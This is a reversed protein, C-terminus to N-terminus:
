PSSRPRDIADLESQTNVNTLSSAMPCWPPTRQTPLERVHGLRSLLSRMGVESPLSGRVSAVATRRYLAHLPEVGDEEHVPVVADSADGGGQTRLWSIAAPSLLPMDCGTAFFWPTEIRELAGYVGAVPGRFTTDDFAFHVDEPSRLVGEYQRRQAATRVAVVPDTPTGARVADLVRQLLPTGELSAVAKNADGFRRSQGGALIVGTVEDATM